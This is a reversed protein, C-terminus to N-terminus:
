NEMCPRKSARIAAMAGADLDVDLLDAFAVRIQRGHRLVFVAKM